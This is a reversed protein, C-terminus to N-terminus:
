NAQKEYWAQFMLINWLYSHCNRKGSIHEEWKQRIPVPDFFGQSRIKSEDLMSEAWERLPGRLWSEIPVGFGKKPRDMMESPVYQHLVERLLWKGKQNRVKMSLPLRWAFEVIRHDLLPIRSELSVGMGARDVKVLIDDPLYSISDLYMMEEMYEFLAESRRGAFVTDPESGGIVISEPSDCHSILSKYFTRSTPEGLLGALKHMKDGVPGSKGSTALLPSLWGFSKDWRDKSISQIFKSAGMRGLKPFRDLKRWIRQATFYRSYGGFLEDGGDGSLSVTVHKKALQAVLFTPIQSSDSFPEDYLEPILPIVDMAQRSSIYMETHDTGLYQAIIKAHEAENYGEEHFGITFTKIPKISQSQMVAVISTSDIGGSLFAGLPVDAVMQQKVSDRILADLSQVADVDTGTFIASKGQGIAQEVTWYPAVKYTRTSLDFTLITGPMMKRINKYISYPAPIYNHRLYLTLAGRDIELVADPHAKIAKLESGFLFVNKGWGYYLPKEGMRDRVLHLRNEKRDLLAFSFMGVFRKVAEEVGWLEMCALMIETDSSGRLQHVAESNEQELMHRLLKYNYIEGNFVIHYRGSQSIMPQHGEQSLDLISLRRHGMAVGTDSDSWMGSSDPGRHVIKDTMKSVTALMAERSAARSQDIFGAIGCM